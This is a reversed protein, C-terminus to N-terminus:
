VLIFIMRERESNGKRTVHRRDIVNAYGIRRGSELAIRVTFTMSM